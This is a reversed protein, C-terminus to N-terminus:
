RIKAKKYGSEDKYIIEKGSNTVWFNLSPLDLLKTDNEGSIEIIRLENDIVFLIHSYTPYFVVKKIPKSFRAVIKFRDKESKDLFYLWIEFETRYLLKKKNKDSALDQAEKPIEEPIQISNLNDLSNEIKETTEEIIPKELFLVPEEKVYKGAEVQETKEWDKYGDKEIKLYYLGPRLYNLTCPTKEKYKGNVYLLAGKPDSSIVMLGTKEITKAKLNLVYGSARLILFFSIIVFSLIVWFWIFLHLHLNKPLM